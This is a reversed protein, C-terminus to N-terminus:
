ENRYKSLLTAMVPTVRCGQNLQYLPGDHIGVVVDGAMRNLVPSGSQGPLTDVDYLIMHDTVEKIQRGAMIMRSSAYGIVQVTTNISINQTWGLYGKTNGINSNIHFMGWDYNVSYGTKYETPIVLERGEYYAVPGGVGPLWFNVKQAVYGNQYLVHAATAVDNPGFLFGTGEAITGDSFTARVRGIASYPTNNMLMEPVPTTEDEGIIMNTAIGEVQFGEANLVNEDDSVIVSETAEEGTVLNRRYIEITNEETIAENAYVSLSGHLSLM